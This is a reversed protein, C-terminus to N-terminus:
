AKEADLKWLERWQAESEWEPRPEWWNLFIDRDWTAQKGCPHAVRVSLGRAWLVLACLHVAPAKDVRWVWQSDARIRITDM